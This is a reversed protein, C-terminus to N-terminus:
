RQRRRREARSPEPKKPETKKPAAVAAPQFARPRLSMLWRLHIGAWIAFPFLQTDWSQFFADLFQYGRAMWPSWYGRFTSSYFAKIGVVVDIVQLVLAIAFALALRGFRVRWSPAPTALMLPILLVLNAMVWEAPIGQPMLPPVFSKFNRHYYFIGTDPVKLCKAAAGCASSCDSVDECPRDCIGRDCEVGRPCDEASSCYGGCGQSGSEVAPLLCLSGTRLTTGSRWLSSTPLESLWVGVRSAQLLLQAYYPASPQWLFYTVFFFVLLRGLFAWPRVPPQPMPM